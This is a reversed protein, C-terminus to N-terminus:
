GAQRLSDSITRLLTELSLLGDEQQRVHQLIETRQQPKLMAAPVLNIKQPARQLYQRLVDIRPLEDAIAMVTRSTDGNLAASLESRLRNAAKVWDGFSRGTAGRIDKEVFGRAFFGLGNVEAQTALLKSEMDALAAVCQQLHTALADTSSTM